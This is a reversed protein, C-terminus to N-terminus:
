DAMMAEAMQRSIGQKMLKQIADEVTKIKGGSASKPKESTVKPSRIARRAKRAEEDLGEILDARKGRSTLVRARLNEIQKELEAIHSDLQELTMDKVLILEVNRVEIYASKSGEDTTALRRPLIGAHMPCHQNLQDENARYWVECQRDDDAIYQCRTYSTNSM